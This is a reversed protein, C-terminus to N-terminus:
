LEQSRDDDTASDEGMDIDGGDAIGEDDDDWGVEENEDFDDYNIDPLLLDKWTDKSLLQMMTKNRHVPGDVAYPYMCVHEQLSDVTVVQYEDELTWQHTLVSHSEGSIECPHVLAYLQEPDDGTNHSFFCLIQSPTYYDTVNQDDDETEWRVNVWDRWPGKKRYNPHSRFTLQDRHYETIILVEHTGITTHLELYQIISSIVDDKNKLNKSKSKWQEDFQCQLPGNLPRKTTITLLCKTSGRISQVIPEMDPDNDINNAPDNNDSDDNDDDDNDPNVNDPLPPGPQHIDDEDEYKDKAKPDMEHANMDRYAREIVLHDALRSALQYEFNHRQFQSTMAPNVSTYKHLFEMPGSHTNNPSGYRLIDFVMHMFEHFKTTNWKSGTTRPILRAIGAMLKRLAFHARKPTETDNINWFTDQKSWELFILILELAQIIDIYRDGPRGRFSTRTEKRGYETTLAMLLAITIYTKEAATTFTLKTFGTKFRVNGILKHGTHRPQKSHWIAIEDLKNRLGAPFDHSFLQELAHKLVGNEISHLTESVCQSYIGHKCNGLNLDWFVNYCDYMYARRFADKKVSFESDKHLGYLEQLDSQIIHTCPRNPNGCRKPSANCARNIRVAKQGYHLPRGCFYDAGQADCIMLMHPILLNVVKTQSGLRLSFNKLSDDIQAQSFGDFITRLQLHLNRTNQGKDKGSPSPRKSKSHPCAVYGLVRCTRHHYRIKRKLIMPFFVVPHAKYNAKSSIEVEDSATGIPLVFDKTPDKIMTRCAEQYWSGTIAEGLLGDPPIYPTFHDDANVLLNEDRNIFPDEFIAKLSAIFDFYVTTAELHPGELLAPATRPRLNGMSYLSELYNVQTHYTTRTPLFKYGAKHAACAWALVRQYLYLPANVHKLIELLATEVQHHIEYPIHPPTSIGNFPQDPHLNNYEHQESNNDTETPFEVHFPPHPNTQTILAPPRPTFTPVPCQLLEQQHPFVRSACTPSRYLHVNLARPTDYVHQCGGCQFHGNHHHKNYQIQSPLPM